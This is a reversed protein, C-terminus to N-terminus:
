DLRAVLPLESIREGRTFEGRLLIERLGFFARGTQSEVDGNRGEPAIVANIRRSM